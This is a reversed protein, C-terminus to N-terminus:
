RWCAPKVSCAVVSGALWDLVVQGDQAHLCRMEVAEGVEFKVRAM